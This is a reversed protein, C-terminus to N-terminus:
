RTKEAEVYRNWSPELTHSSPRAGAVVPDALLTGDLEAYTSGMLTKSIAVERTVPDVALLTLDFLTHIDARLLLGNAVANSEPGRYPRIHAAELVSAADTGTVACQDSYAELLAARFKPQGRRAVIQRAVRLRADYEDSPPDDASSAQNQEAEALLLDSVTDGHRWEGDPRVGEFLFYGDVWATPVALGLVDYTDRNASDPVRERLVGVPVHDEICRLLGRNTYERDRQTPDPNEQHYSFYWTGDERSFVEGDPYPSGLNIRVSLAHELDKAKYIGKPRTVLFSGDPLPMPYGTTSGARQRFWDLRTVHADTLYGLNISPM